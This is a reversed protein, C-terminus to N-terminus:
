HRRKGHRGGKSRDLSDEVRMVKSKNSAAAGYSHSASHLGAHKVPVDAFEAALEPDAISEASAFQAYYEENQEMASLLGRVLDCQRQQRHSDSMRSLAGASVPKVPSVPMLPNGWVPSQASTVMDLAPSTVNISLGNRAATAKRSIPSLLDTSQETQEPFTLSPTIPTTPASVVRLVKASHPSSVVSSPGSRNSNQQVNTQVNLQFAQARKPSMPAANSERRIPQKPLQVDPSAQRQQQQKAAAAARWSTSQDAKSVGDAPRPSVSRKVNGATPAISAFFASNANNVLAPQKTRGM